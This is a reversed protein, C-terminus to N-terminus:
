NEHEDGTERKDLIDKIVDCIVKIQYNFEDLVHLQDEPKLEKYLKNFELQQMIFEKMINNMKEQKEEDSM